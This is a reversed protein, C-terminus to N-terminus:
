NSVERVLLPVIWLTLVILFGLFLSFVLTLSLWRPVNYKELGNVMWDLVYAIVVSALIPALVDGMFMIVLSLGIILFLLYVAEPDSFYKQYWQQLVQYIM